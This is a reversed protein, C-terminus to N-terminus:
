SERGQQEKRSALEVACTQVIGVNANLLGGLARATAAMPMSSSLGFALAALTSCATGVLLTSKRGIKDSIRAWAIGSLFESFTFVAVFLGAYFSVDKEGVGFSQVMSYVYPHISTWAMAETLRLM